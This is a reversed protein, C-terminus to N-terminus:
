DESGAHPAVLAQINPDLKAFIEIRAGRMPLSGYILRELQEMSMEIRAGRM